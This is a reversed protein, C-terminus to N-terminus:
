RVGTMTEMLPMTLRFHKFGGDGEDSFTLTSEPDDAVVLSEASSPLLRLVRGINLALEHEPTLQIEVSQGEIHYVGAFKQLQEADLTVVQRSTEPLDFLHRFIAASQKRGDFSSLNSLLYASYGDQLLRATFTSFGPINGGHHTVEHGHYDHVAWGYAYSHPTGDDLRLPTYVQKLTAASVLKNERLAQEWRMLDNVSSILGGAADPQTMSIFVTHRLGDPTLDYGHAMKPVLDYDNMNRTQTMGLPDFIMQKMCASYSLGSIKELIRGLLFYGSNNYRFQSGPRFDFPRQAFEAVLADPAIERRMATGFDPANTYSFIGSSHTLLHYITVRHGSTPYQPLFRTLEDDVSLKGQEVLMMIAIATFQKSVSALKFVTDPGVPIDWEANARGYGKVHVPQGDRLIALAAGAGHLDAEILADIAAFTDSM